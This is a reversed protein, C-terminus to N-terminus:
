KLLVFKKLDVFSGASLRYVYVGNSLGQGDFLVRHMGRTQDEDVLTMVVRGLADFVTLNVRTDAPLTYSITTTPNFPNPYNQNLAFDEPTEEVSLMVTARDSGGRGDSVTYSFSDEGVYGADPTYVFAGGDLKEVSGHGALEHSIVSLTDGDLDVDNLLVHITISEGSFAAVHDDAAKPAENGSLSLVFARAEGQYLGYGVIRGSSNVDRAEVLTWGSEAPILANLDLLSEGIWLSARLDMASTKAPDVGIDMSKGFRMATPGENLLDALVDNSRLTTAESKGAGVSSSYAGVIWGSDNIGYAEAFTSGTVDFSFESGDPDWRTASIVGATEKSGVAVGLGNVAYARTDDSGIRQVQQVTGRIASETGSQSVTLGVLQGSENISEAQGSSVGDVAIESMIGGTWVVPRFDGAGLSTGVVQGANNVDFAVSFAGDLTPLLTSETKEPGLQWVAATIEGDQEIAGVVQGVDNVGFAQSYRTEDSDIELISNDTWIFAKVVGATTLSTGVVVGDDNIAFARSGRGGLTGTEEITFRLSTVTVRVTGVDEGGNGDSVTYVFEDEGLFGTEPSYRVTGPASGIESVGRTAEGVSTVTLADGDADYDNDLVRIVVPASDGTTAADDTAVPADNVADITIRVTATDSVAEKDDVITYKFSDTGNFDASPTYVVVSDNRVTVTGSVPSTISNIRLEDDEADTDNLLLNLSSAVDEAVSFMDDVAVPTDNVPIVRFSVTADASEDTGDSARYTFQDSETESGDHVYTFSGNAQLTLTGHSVDTVLIASLADGDADSDNDLVGRPVRGAIANLRGGEDLPYDDNNAVPVSNGNDVAITFRQEASETGDSALLVIEHDGIDAPSPTGILSATGDGNDVLALWDAIVSASITVTDGDPDQVTIAYSYLIEQTASIVPESTFQPPDNVDDVVITFSQQDGEIGDSISIVIDHDGVDSAAPTGSLVATGNGNDILTIWSPGVELTFVITDDDPDIASVDYRYEQNQVAGTLPTSTFFPSDNTNGVDISFSQQDSAEGDGVTIVVPHLGVDSNQPTGALVGTGDGSDVFTLWSPLTSAALIIAPGDPDATTIVYRYEVEQSASQVPTSTIRPPDNVPIIQIRVTATNSVFIGDNAIYDFEDVTTESGDHEYAFSGDLDFQFSGHDVGSILTASLADGDPDDDNDLVGAPDGGATTVLTGGELVSYVDAVAVPVDNTNRVSIVFTQDAFEGLADAVRLVVPNDGVNTNSPTGALTGTGDGNDTLILWAPVQGTLTLVDGGDDDVAQITYSYPQDQLAGTVPPSVFRPPDNTNVVVITFNQPASDIGDSVRLAVPNNGVHENEPTGALLATGDGNDTFVLWDPLTLATLTLTTGTDADSASVVYQYELDETATTVPTSTFIPADNTNAVTVSFSQQITEVGDSVSLVVPHVGVDRNRPNGSLVGTGNGNDVFSLWTPITVASLAIADDDPDSATVNYTYPTDESAETPPASTFAPADNTNTVSISFSQTATLNGDSVQLQVPNIGVDDNLPTGSLSATGDGFNTLTLWSPLTPASFVLTTGADLDSATVTYTYVQDEIAGTVPASTFFPPDNKDSITITFSQTTQVTGDTASLVVDHLGIESNSPTGSLTGTGDGSDSFSLWSPLTPATIAITDGDPDTVVVDYVYAADQSGTTVPTSTYIPADNTNSVSITFSQEDTLSGDSVRIVVSNPGVHQNRPTGTLTATGDGNDLLALWTPLTTASYSLTTGVDPDSATATYTYAFDETAATVPASTFFPPDNKDAITITFSQTTPATGDTARLVVNHVGINSNTPTGSLTATGDDNDALSLWSPLTPATITVSDADPDSVTVPYLYAVDQSGATVPLSTFVPADNTNIVTITFSQTDSLSGDSVDIQVPNSGVNANLPTGILSATGDGNDTFTLWSPLTPATFILTTGGDPDSATVTYTYTQDETAGTVPASTFFPPDNKDSVTVSFSQLTSITGDFANLVVSHIGIDSNSPTGSLTATGDTNDTLSLWGPLTPATISISDGDPDTVVVDYVYAADQAGTTVPSSTFVPPDNTNAVSILFSQQDTLSGDSVRLVVANAGVDDNTPTGTLSATGNGNDIFMLWAPLTPATLVLTTGADPDSATVAYTYPADETAVTVPSSTFAPAENVNSVTVTFSQQDSLTGDSVTLTVAHVGVEDNGPTGSLTATGNGNDTLTLWTPKQTATITRTDGDPDATPVAYSYLVDQTGTTVPTSTFSPADNVDAVTITFSQEDFLGGDSVRITVPN